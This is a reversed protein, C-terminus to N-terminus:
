LALDWHPGYLEAWLALDWHPGCLEAWLALDWLQAMCSQAWLALNWLQAVCCTQIHQLSFTKSPILGQNQLNYCTLTAHQLKPHVSINTYKQCSSDNMSNLTQSGTLDTHKTCVMANTKRDKM